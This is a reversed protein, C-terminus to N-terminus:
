WTVTATEDLRLVLHYRGDFFTRTVRASRPLEESIEDLLAHAAAEVQDLFGYAHVLEESRRADLASELDRRRQTRAVGEARIALLREIFPSQTTSPQLSRPTM